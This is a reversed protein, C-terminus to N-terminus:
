VKDGEPESVRPKAWELYVEGKDGRRAAFFYGRNPRVAEPARPIPRAGDCM